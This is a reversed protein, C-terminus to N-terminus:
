SLQITPSTHYRRFCDGICLAPKDSCTVCMTATLHRAGNPQRSSCVRCDRRKRGTEPFHRGQLCELTQDHRTPQPTRSNIFPHCLSVILERRFEKHTLKRKSATHSNYIIYSNVVVVEIMWFFGKRWWKISKREFMFYAMRQDLRDVGLMFKNYETVVLPKRQTPGHRSPFYFAFAFRTEVFTSQLSCYMIIIIHVLVLM